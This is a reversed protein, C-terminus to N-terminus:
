PRAQMQELLTEIRGLRRDIDNIKRTQERQETKLSQIDTRNYTVAVDREAAWSLIGFAIGGIALLAMLMTLGTKTVTISGNGNGSGETVM